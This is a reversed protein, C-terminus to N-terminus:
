GSLSKRVRRRRSFIQRLSIACVMTNPAILEWRAMSLLADPGAM